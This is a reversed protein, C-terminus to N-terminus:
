TSEGELAVSLVKKIRHIRTAVNAPSLGTAEAIVSAEEGELYLLILQRDIPRLMHILALLRSATDRHQMLHEARADALTAEVDEITLLIPKGRRARVVHSAGVNHTVRYVWTRLGCRHDFHEFSRFLALHMEQILEQRIAANAEYGRALRAIEPGLASAAEYLAAPASTM